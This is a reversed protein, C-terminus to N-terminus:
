CGVAYAITKSQSYLNTFFIKRIFYLRYSCSCFNYYFSYVSLRQTFFTFESFYRSKLMVPLPKLKLSICEPSKLLLIFVHVTNKVPYVQVERFQGYSSRLITASNSYINCKCRFFSWNKNLAISIYNPCNLCVM